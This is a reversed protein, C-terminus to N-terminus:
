PFIIGPLAKDVWVRFWEIVQLFVAAVVVGNLHILPEPRQKTTIFWYQGLRETMLSYAADM